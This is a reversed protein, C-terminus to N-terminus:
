NRNVNVNKWYLYHLVINISYITIYQINYLAFNTMNYIIRWHLILGTKFNDGTCSQQWM